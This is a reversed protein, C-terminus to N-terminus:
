LIEGRVNEVFRKMKAADKKKDTEIGSSVDVGFAGTVELAQRVNEPDLGGALFYDRKIGQLLEWNFPKGTGMGSDLLVYDAGSRNALDVDEKERVKFAKIVPAKTQKKIVSIYEEDESGHLQAIDIIGESILENIFSIDEDVFVGVAKVEPNLLSKLLKAQEKTVNRSSKEYFVFGIFDPNLKNAAEIDEKRSLGCLKIKVMNKVM